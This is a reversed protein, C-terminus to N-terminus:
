NSTECLRFKVVSYYPVTLNIEPTAIRADLHAQENTKIKGIHCKKM